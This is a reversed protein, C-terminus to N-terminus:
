MVIDSGCSVLMNITYRDGTANIGPRSGIGRVMSHSPSSDAIATLMGSSTGAGNKIVKVTSLLTGSSSSSGVM